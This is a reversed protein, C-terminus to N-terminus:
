KCETSVTDKMYILAMGLHDCCALRFDALAMDSTVVSTEVLSGGSAM